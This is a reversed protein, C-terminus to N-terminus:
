IPLTPPDIRVIEIFKGDVIKGYSGFRGYPNEILNDPIYAGKPLVIGDSTVTFVDSYTNLDNPKVQSSISTNLSKGTWPSIGNAYSVGVTSAVGIAGGIAMSQGIGNFSNPFAVDLSQGQLLGATTGGAIHGAGAALPSVVASRLVPSNINNVLLSSNPAWYGASGGAFGSVGGICANKGVQTWDVNEIGSFNKGTQAVIDNNTSVLAGMGAAISAITLIGAGAAAVVTTAVAAASGVIFSSIGDWFGEINEKNSFFNLGGGLAAVGLLVWAFEGSPDTFKLPNNLCYSYRNFNQSFDPMQVYPDPSLFRGIAPDYLRANMNVLGFWPLYEHGTYGRGLLLLRDYDTSLEESRTYPTGDTHLLKGWPSYRMRHVVTGAADTIDTVSGQYDRYIYHLKWQGFNVRVYVFGDEGVGFIIKAVVTELDNM